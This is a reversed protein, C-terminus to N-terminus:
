GVPEEWPFQADVEFVPALARFIAMHGQPGPHVTDGMRIWLNQPHATRHHFPVQHAAWAAYHDVIPVQLEAALDVLAQAGAAGRSPHDLFAEGPQAGEPIPDWYGYVVPNYTNLLVEAGAAQVRRIVETAVERDAQLAEPSRASLGGIAFVVLDPAFRLLSQEMRERERSWGLGCASSNVVWIFGDGYTEWLAESLLQVWNKHGRTWHTDVSCSDGSVVITVPEQRRLKELVRHM